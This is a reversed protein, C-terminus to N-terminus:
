GAVEEAGFVEEFTAQNIVHLIPYQLCQGLDVGHRLLDLNEYWGAAIGYTQRQCAALRDLVGPEDNSFTVDTVVAPVKEFRDEAYHVDPLRVGMRENKEAQIRRFTDVYSDIAGAMTLRKRAWPMLRKSAKKYQGLNDLIRSLTSVWMEPTNKICLGGKTDLRKYVPGESAVWPVGTLLYEVAKLWSRHNDYSEGQPAGPGCLPAVGIDFSAVQKPWEQAPVGTQDIWRGPVLENMMAKVRADNGCVKWMVRPYRETIAVMAERLGSFFFGDWHSVSGGWGIVIPEDGEPAPKQEIGEYWEAQAYNPLWYGSVIHSWDKIILDNPSALADVHKFGETIAEIPSYGTREKLKTSDEIWFKYAPNQPCLHPYDDDLDAVVLKGMGRWYDCAKWVGEYLLNRQVIVVEARGVIAQVSPHGYHVFDNLPICRAEHQPHKNLGDSPTM